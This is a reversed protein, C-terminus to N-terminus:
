EFTWLFAAAASAKSSLHLIPCFFFSNYIIYIEKKTGDKRYLFPQTFVNTVMEKLVDNKWTELVLLFIYFIHVSGLGICLHGM